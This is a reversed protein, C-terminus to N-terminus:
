PDTADVTFKDSVRHISIGKRAKYHYLRGKLVNFTQALYSAKTIMPVAPM